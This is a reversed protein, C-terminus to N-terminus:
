SLTKGFFFTETICIRFTFALESQKGFFLPTDLYFKGEFTFLDYCTPIGMTYLFACLMSTTTQPIKM